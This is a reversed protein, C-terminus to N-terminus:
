RALGHEHWDVHKAIIIPSCWRSDHVFRPLALHCTLIIAKIVALEFAEAPIKIGVATNQYNKIATRRVQLLDFRCDHCGDKFAFTRTAARSDYISDGFLVHQKRKLGDAFVTGHKVHTFLFTLDLNSAGHVVQRITFNYKQVLNNTLSPAQNNILSYDETAQLHEVTTHTAENLDTRRRCQWVYQM